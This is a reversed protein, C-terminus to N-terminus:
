PAKPGVPEPAERAAQDGAKPKSTLLSTASGRTPPEGPPPKPTAKPPEGSVKPTPVLLSAPEKAPEGSVKPTPAMGRAAGSQPGATKPTPEADMLQSASPSAKPKSKLVHSPGLESAGQPVILKQGPRAWRAQTGGGGKATPAMLTPENAKPARPAAVRARKQERSAEAVAEEDVDGNWLLHKVEFGRGHFFQSVCRRSQQLRWPASGSLLVCPRRAEETEGRAQAAIKVYCLSLIPERSYSIKELSCCARVAEAAHQGESGGPRVDVLAKIAHRGLAKFLDNLSWEAPHGLTFIVGAVHKRRKRPPAEADAGGGAAGGGDAAPPESPPPGGAAAPAQVEGAAPADPAAKPLPPAMARAAGAGRP